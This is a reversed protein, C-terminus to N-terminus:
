LTLTNATSVLISLMTLNHLLSGLFCVSEESLSSSTASEEETTRITLLGLDTILNMKNEDFIGTESVVITAPSISIDLVLKTKTEVAHALGTVSRAKVDEYRAM